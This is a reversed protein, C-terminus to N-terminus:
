RKQLPAGSGSPVYEVVLQKAIYASILKVALWGCVALAAAAFDGGGGSNQMWKLVGFAILGIELIAASLGVLPYRLYFFGGGPILWTWLLCKLNSKFVTNCAACRTAGKPLPQTCGPCLYARRNLNGSKKPSLRLEGIMRRLKKKEMRGLFPFVESQGGKYHVELSRWKFEVGKCDEYMIQSISGRPSRNFRTPIHLIRRDTFILLARKFLWFAAGTLAWEIFRTPSYGTTLCRIHEGPQLFSKIFTSKVILNRQRREIRKKYVGKHNSFIAERDVPITFITVPRLGGNHSAASSSAATQAQVM